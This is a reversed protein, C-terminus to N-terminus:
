RIGVGLPWRLPELHRQPNATSGTSEPCSSSLPTSSVSALRGREPEASVCLSGMPPGRWVAQSRHPQTRGPGQSWEEHLLFKSFTLSFWVNLSLSMLPSGLDWGWPGPLLIVNWCIDVKQRNLWIQSLTAPSPPQSSPSPPCLTSPSLAGPGAHVCVCVCPKRQLCVM